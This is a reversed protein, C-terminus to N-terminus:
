KCLKKMSSMLIQNAFGSEEILAINEIKNRAHHSIEHLFEFVGPNFEKEDFNWMFPEKYFFEMEFFVDNITNQVEYLINAPLWEKHFYRRLHSFGYQDFLRYINSATEQIDRLYKQVDALMNRNFDIRNKQYLFAQIAKDEPIPNRDLFRMFIKETRWM